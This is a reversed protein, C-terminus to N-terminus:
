KSSSALATFGRSQIQHSLCVVAPDEFGGPAKFKLPRSEKPQQLTKRHPKKVQSERHTQMQSIFNKLSEITDLLADREKVWGQVNFQGGPESESLPLESLSLVQMGEQHVERLLM